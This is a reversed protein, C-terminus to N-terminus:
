TPIPSSSGIDSRFQRGEFRIKQNLQYARKLAEEKTLGIGIANLVRGGNTVLENKSNKAVGCFLVYQNSASNLTEPADYHIVEGKQPHDPYGGAANVICATFQNTKELKQISGNALDLMLQAFDNKILPLIVQTEPDGLRVNYELVYPEGSVVMVGVFIFGRYNFKRKKLGLVTPKLIREIIKTELKPDLQIPAITGMGGTNPGRDSDLLRKHDQAIPLIQFDEGNTLAIVSLEFGPLNNEILAQDGAAGLKKLEFLERSATELENETKCIFVGKGAALGDAKLIFPASFKKLNALCSQVSNVVEARATPISFEIMFNKAFIKSGELQAADRGPGVCPIGLDRFADAYGEVLEKEPGIIVFTIENQQAWKAIESSSPKQIQLIQACDEHGPNGPYVYLSPNSKSSKLKRLLAHERGGSGIVLIKM